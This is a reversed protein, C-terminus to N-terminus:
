SMIGLRYYLLAGDAWDIEAGLRNYFGQGRTNTASATWAIHSAGIDSARQKLVNMMVLGFGLSRMSSDIYLDDLWISPCGSFSSYRSHYLAFGVTEQQDNKALIVKAFPNASLITREIKELTTTVERAAGIMSGDFDAKKQIFNLILQADDKDADVVIMPAEM